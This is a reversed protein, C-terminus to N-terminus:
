RKLMDKIINELAGHADKVPFEKLVELAEGALELQLSKTKEIGQGNLVTKHLKAYNINAVDNKGKEIEEYAELDDELHFLIPASILSFPGYEAAVFQQMDLHAQWALGLYRGFLYAKEQFYKDHGALLMAGQCSKGLLSAGGLVNRLMWEAKANGLVCKMDIQIPAVGFETPVAVDKRKEAPLPKAPLPHNQEDRPGIFDCEVLDKLASSMLENLDHNKLCALEHFSSSLLYDGSLLAIKNGFHLDSINEISIDYNLLARHLKNSTRIMGTVEALARQSHLIGTFFLNNLLFCLLFSFCFIGQFANFNKNFKLSDNTTKNFFFCM